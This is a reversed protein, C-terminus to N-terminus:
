PIAPHQNIINLTFTETDIETATPPTPPATDTMEIEANWTGTTSLNGQIVSYTCIGATTPLSVVCNGYFLLSPEQEQTYVYLTAYLNTLDFPTGDANQITFTFSFGFNNVKAILGAVM